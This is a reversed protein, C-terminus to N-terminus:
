ELVAWDYTLWDGLLIGGEMRTGGPRLLYGPDATTSYDIVFPQGNADRNPSWNMRPHSHLFGIVASGSPIM